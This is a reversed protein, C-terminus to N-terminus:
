RVTVVGNVVGSPLKRAAADNVVQLQGAVTSGGLPANSLIQFTCSVWAGNGFPTRNATDIVALRLRRKGSPAPPSTPFSTKLASAPLGPATLTCPATPNPVSLVATPYLVDVQAGVYGGPGGSLTVPIVVMAGRSGSVSGITLTTTAMASLPSALLSNPAVVGQAMSGLRAGGGIGPCDQLSDLIAQNVQDVTVMGDRDLDNCANLSANRTFSSTDAARSCANM